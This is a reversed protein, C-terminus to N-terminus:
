VPQANSLYGRLRNIDHIVNTKSRIHEEISKISYIISSHHKNGFAKGIEKLSMDTYNRTLFIAVQRPYSINRTKKRSVLDSTSIQFYKATIKQIDEPGIQTYRKDELISQVVSIDMKKGYLTTHGEIKKIQKVLNKLDNNSSALFFTADEQFQIGQQRARQHILKMKTEQDPAKIETILGWELRSRLQPLLNKIQSPPVSASVVLQRKSELFQTCLSLLEEQSKCGAVVTQIDDLLLFRPPREKGWFGTNSGLFTRDFHDIIKQASLYVAKNDPNNKIAENGIAHLLHTKGVSWKSFIYLPNYKNSPNKAVELASSFALGNFRAKLFASFTRSPDLGSPFSTSSSKATRETKERLQNSPSRYSFQIAPRRGLLNSLLQGIPEGYNESLWAAVFKNPVQIVALKSNVELLSAQSLWTEIESKPIHTGINRKIQDWIESKTTM